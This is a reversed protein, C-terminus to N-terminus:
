LASEFGACTFVTFIEYIDPLGPACESSNCPIVLLALSFSRISFLCISVAFLCVAAISLM